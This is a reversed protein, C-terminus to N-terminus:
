EKIAWLKRKAWEFNGPTVVAIDIEGGCLAPGLGFRFRGIVVQVAYEAYDIADQLPMGDFIIILESVADKVWKEIINKDVGRKVLEELSLIDYGKFLRILADTQGFWNSGFSPRGDEKNPRVIAWTQSKPFEYFFTDPFFQEFSYGGIFIGLPPKIGHSYAADYRKKIFFLLKGAIEEVTYSQTETKNAYDYEFEMILSQVSRDGISGSGWNMIGIPYNKFRTVKNAFQFSQIIGQGTGQPTNITGSVMVASDAALVLGEAVNVSICITM